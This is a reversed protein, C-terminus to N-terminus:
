LTLYHKIKQFREDYMLKLERLENLNEFRGHDERYDVIEKVMYYDIYPHKQLQSFSAKNLAIKRIGSTDVWLFEQVKAYDISDFSYVELLQKKTFFGGLYNRYKVIRKSFVAGIGRIKILETSDTSNIDLHPPQYAESEERKQKDQEQNERNDTYQKKSPKEPKEIRIYSEMQEFEKESIGYIKKFDDKDYFHGGSKEYNKIIDIQKDSFGIKQWKERPLNNPDFPFPTLETTQATSDASSTKSKQEQEKEKKRAQIFAEVQQKFAAQDNKLRSKVLQPLMLYVGGLAVLLTLLALAGIREKKNFDFFQKFNNKM